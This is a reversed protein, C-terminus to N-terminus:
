KSMGSSLNDLLENIEAETERIRKNLSSIRKGSKKMRKLWLLTRGLRDMPEQAGNFEMDPGSDLYGLQIPM